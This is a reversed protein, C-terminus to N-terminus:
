AGDLVCLVGDGSPLALWGFWRLRGQGILSCYRGLASIPMAASIAIVGQQHICCNLAALWKLREKERIPCPLSPFYDEVEKSSNPVLPLQLHWEIKMSDLRM